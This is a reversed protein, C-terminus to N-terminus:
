IDTRPVIYRRVQWSTAQASTTFLQGSDEDWAVFLADADLKYECLFRGDLGFVHIFRGASAALGGWPRLTRGSFLAVVTTRGPAIDLYGFRSSDVIRLTKWEGRQAQEYLPSFSVPVDFAALTGSVIDWSEIRGAMRYGVILQRGDPTLKATAQYAHQRVPVVISDPGPPSAGLLATLRGGSTFRAFHGKEFLGLALYDGTPLATVGTVTYSHPLQGEESVVWGTASASARFMRRSEIDYLSLMSDGPYRTDLTWLSRLSDVVYRRSAQRERPVSRFTYWRLAHESPFYEVAILRHSLIAVRPPRGPASDSAFVIESRLSHSPAAYSKVDTASRPSPVDDRVCSWLITLSLAVVLRNAM